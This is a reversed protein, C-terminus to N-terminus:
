LAVLGAILTPGDEARWSFAIQIANRQRASSPGNITINQDEIGEGVKFFVFFGLMLNPGGRVFCEPDAYSTCLNYSHINTSILYVSVGFSAM